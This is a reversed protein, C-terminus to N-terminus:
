YIKEKNVLSPRLFNSFPTKFFSNWLHRNNEYDFLIWFHQHLANSQYICHHYDGPRAVLVDGRTMPCIRGNCFFSVDGSINVYIECENHIHRDIEFFHKERCGESYNIKIEIENLAPIKLKAM